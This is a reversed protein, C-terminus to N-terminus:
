IDTLMLFTEEDMAKLFEEKGSYALFLNRIAIEVIEGQSKSFTKSLFELQHKTDLTSRVNVRVVKGKVM